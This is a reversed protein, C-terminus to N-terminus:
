IFVEMQYGIGRITKLSLTSNVAKLRRRLFHIYNDLNGEEVDSDLGWVRSLLVTRTLTQGPNRLFVELLAGERKSLTCEKSDKFLRNTEPDFSIDGLKLLDSDDWKGPRRMICHIRALLEEFAFPKVMYDDAGCELGTVKDNLEGLATLFIVPTSIHSKRAAKLVSVGDLSPLMRDLIVLDHMNEQMYYLGEEGDHCVDVVFDEKELRFKMAEALEIDDEIVLIRM